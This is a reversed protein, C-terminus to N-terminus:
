VNEEGEEVEDFMIQVMVKKGNKTPLEFQTGDSNHSKCINYIKTLGEAFATSLKLNQKDM